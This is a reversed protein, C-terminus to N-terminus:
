PAEVGLTRLTDYQPYVLPPSVGLETEPEGLGFAALRIRTRVYKESLGLLLMVIAALVGAVALVTLVEIM